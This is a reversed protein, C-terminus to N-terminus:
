EEPVEVREEGLKKLILEEITEKLYSTFIFGDSKVMGADKALLEAEKKLETRDEKPLEDLYTQARKVQETREDRLRSMEAKQKAAAEAKAKEKKKRETAEELKQKTSKFEPPAEYNDTIAKVLWGAPNRPAAGGGKAILFDLLDIREIILDHDHERVLRKAHAASVGCKVLKGEAEPLPETSIGLSKQKTSGRRHCFSIFWEGVRAKEYRSGEKLPLKRAKNFKMEAEQLEKSLRVRTKENKTKKLNERKKSAEKELNKLLAPLEEAQLFIYESLALEFIAPQLRQKLQGVNLKRSMGVKELAFEKFDFRWSPKHWFRRDLFRYIRKAIGSQFDRLALFNLKKLNGSAFSKQIYNGWTFSCIDPADPNDLKTFEAEEIIHFNADVWAADKGEELSPIRWANEYSLSITQWRQIAKKVRQYSKGSHDWGLINLLEYRSYKVVKPFGRAKSLQILAVLIEDDLTNPLGLKKTGMVTLTRPILKGRDHYHDQFTLTLDSSANRTSLSCIPFEALNLEDRGNLLQEDQPNSFGPILDIQIPPEEEEKKKKFAKM